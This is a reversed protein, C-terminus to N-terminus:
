SKAAPSCAGQRGPAPSGPCFLEFAERLEEDTRKICVFIDVGEAIDRCLDVPLAHLEDLTCSDNTNSFSPGRQASKAHRGTAKKAKCPTEKCCIPKLALYEGLNHWLRTHKRYPSGYKCYSVDKFPLDKVVRQKPLLGTQPNEIIYTCDFYAIIELSKAVLANALILNRPGGRTKARSFETCPPSAWVCDFHLPPYQKYQFDLVDISHTPSHRDCIDVTVTEWGLEEFARSVSQTGSFLELLRFTM